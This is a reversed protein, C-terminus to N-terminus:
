HSRSSAFRSTYRLKSYRSCTLDSASSPRLYERVRYSGDEPGNEEESQAHGNQQPKPEKSPTEQIREWGDKLLSLDAWRIQSEVVVFIEAGRHAITRLPGVYGPQSESGDRPKLKPNLQPAKTNSDDFLQFGPCPRSLWTPTYSIIKPM